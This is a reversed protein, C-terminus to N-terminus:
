CKTQCKAYVDLSEPLMYVFSFMNNCMSHLHLMRLRVPLAWDGSESLNYSLCGYADTQPASWDEEAPGCSIDMLCALGKSSNVMDGSIEPYRWHKLNM